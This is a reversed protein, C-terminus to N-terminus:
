LHDHDGDKYDDDDDDRKTNNSQDSDLGSAEPNIPEEGAASSREVNVPRDPKSVGTTRNIPKDSEHSIFYFIEGPQFYAYPEKTFTM